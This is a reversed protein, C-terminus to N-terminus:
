FLGEAAMEALADILRANDNESIAGIHGIRFVENALQGGNPCLWIDHKTKAREIIAAANHNPCRLATVANSPNEPIMELATDSVAARVAEARAAILSREAEIGAAFIEKLRANIELLTTVAPTWPTQGREGNKLAEKLSLYSCLEPNEAVRAQAVPSLALLSIGPHCALAKQSGTLIVDAGLAAMDIEDAIFASVADIILVLNHERCFSSVLGMDYLLGSSTEHMNVLLATADTSVVSDLDDRTLQKGFALAVEDVEHDHLRCLEVFRQGFSGGNVVAVHEGPKLVSMVAAEMAGTGSATLFVCRSDEPANLLGLTLRENELMVQSFEANRFYPASQASIGLVSEPSEVPGVTFNLM